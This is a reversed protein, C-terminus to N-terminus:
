FRLWITKIPMSSWCKLLFTLDASPKIHCVVPKGLAMAEIAAIGYGDGIVFQDLFIDYGRVIGLAQSYPVGDILSQDM